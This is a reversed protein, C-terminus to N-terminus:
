VTKVVAKIIIAALLTVCTGLLYHLITGLDNFPYFLIEVIEYREAKYM